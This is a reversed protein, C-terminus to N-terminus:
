AKMDLIRRAGVSPDRETSPRAAAHGYAGSGTFDVLRLLHDLFAMQQGMLARNVIHERQVEDLMGRLEASRQRATAASRFDMLTTLAELTVAGSAVQLRVAARDLLEARSSDIQRRRQLEANLRGAQGVVEQVNRDRIAKGQDLVIALLTRASHLQAELHRLVDATLVADAPAHPVIAQQPRSATALSM